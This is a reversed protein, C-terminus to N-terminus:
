RIVEDARLLLSQPITLGMAKATKLNIVLDFKTPQEIPLDGPKAGQLIKHVYRAARRFVESFSPGYSMLGGAEVFGGGGFITPLRSAAVLEIVKARHDTLLPGGLVYMADARAAAVSAFAHPLDAANRVEVSELRLRLSPAVAQMTKLAVDAFPRLDSGWVLAVRSADPAVQKLLELRKASLETSMLSLGTVNGGPRALGGALGTGVPDGGVVIVIPITATAKKAAQAAITGLTVIVDVKLRVLEAALDPLQDSGGNAYRRDITFHRGEVYGLEGLARGFEAESSLPGSFGSLIGIHRVKASPQGSADPPALVLPVVLVCSRITALARRIPVMKM